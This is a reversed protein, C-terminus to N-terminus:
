GPHKKECNLRYKEEEPGRGDDGLGGEGYLKVYHPFDGNGMYIDTKEKDGDDAFAEYLEGSDLYMCYYYNNIESDFVRRVIGKNEVLGNAYYVTFKGDETIHFSAASPDGDIFWYGELGSYDGTNTVSTTETVITTDTEKETSTTSEETAETVKTTAVTTSEPKESETQTDRGCGTAFATVSIILALLRINKM